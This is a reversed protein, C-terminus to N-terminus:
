RLEEDIEAIRLLDGSGYRYNEGQRKVKEILKAREALLDDRM